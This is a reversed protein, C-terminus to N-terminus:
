KEGKSYSICSCRKGNKFNGLTAKYPRDHPCIMNIPTQNNIYHNDVMIYGEKEIIHRVEELTTRQKEGNAIDACKRCGKGKFVRYWNTNYVHGNNCTITVVQKESNEYHTTIISYGKNELIAKGEEFKRKNHCNNCNGKRKEIQKITDYKVEGCKLCQYLMKDGFNLFESKDVCLKYGYSNALEQTQEYNFRRKM